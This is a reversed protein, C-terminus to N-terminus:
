FPEATRNRRSSQLTELWEELSKQFIKVDSRAFRMNSFFDDPWEKRAGALYAECAELIVRNRSRDSERALRDLREILEEPLHVGTSAMFRNSYFIRYGTEKPLATM